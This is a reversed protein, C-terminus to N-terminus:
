SAAPQGANLAASPKGLQHLTTSLMSTRRAPRAAGRRQRGQVGAARDPRGPPVGDDPRQRPGRRRHGGRAGYRDALADLQAIPQSTGAFFLKVHAAAAQGALRQLGTGCDCDAPVLAIASTTLTRVAVAGRDLQVNGPPLAALTAAPAAPQGAQPGSLTPASAPSMTAVSLVAGGVLSIALCVAILPIIATPRGFGAARLPRSLHRLRQRRRKARMERRYALVDRDLDRADDPVVINCRPCTATM